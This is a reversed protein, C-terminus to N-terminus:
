HALSHSPVNGESEMLGIQEQLEAHEKKKEHYYNLHNEAYDSMCLVVSNVRTIFGATRYLFDTVLEQGHTLTIQRCNEKLTKLDLALHKLHTRTNYQKMKNEM